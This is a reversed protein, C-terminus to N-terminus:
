VLYIFFLVGHLQITMCVTLPLEDAGHYRTYRVSQHMVAHLRGLLDSQSLLDEGPTIFLKVDHEWALLQDGVLFFFHSFMKKYM